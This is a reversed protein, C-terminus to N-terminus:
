SSSHMIYATLEHHQADSLIQVDKLVDLLAIIQGAILTETVVARINEDQIGSTASTVTTRYEIMHCLADQFSSVLRGQLDQVAQRFNKDQM